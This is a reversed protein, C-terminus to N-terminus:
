RLKRGKSARTDVKKKMKQRLKQLEVFQKTVEGMSTSTNAKYEILERLQQHYFDSDDYINPNRVVDDEANENDKTTNKLQQSKEKLVSKNILANDIKKIIDYEEMLTRKKNGAGPQLIKTRDDWKLLVSNRYSSFSDFSEKLYENFQKLPPEKHNNGKFPYPRKLCPKMAKDLEPFQTFLNNQLSLLNQLLQCTQKCTEQQIDKHKVNNVNLDNIEQPGPLQNTKNLIKQLSIRLELLREWLRLQNQVSLGKQIEAEHNVKSVVETDDDHEDSDIDDEMDDDDEDEDSSQEEGMAEENIDDQQSDSSDENMNQKLTKNFNKLANEDDSPDSNEYDEEEAEENDSDVEDSSSEFDKRSAIKGKYKASQDALLKVNRKRFETTAAEPLEYENDDYDIVRAATAEKESESDSGSENPHLLTDAIKEAVTKEKNKPKKLM